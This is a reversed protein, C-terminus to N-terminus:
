RVFFATMELVSAGNTVAFAYKTGIYTAFEEQFQKAYSCLTYEPSNGMAELAAVAEDLGHMSYVEPYNVKLGTQPYCTGSWDKEMKAM